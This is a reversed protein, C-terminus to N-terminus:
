SFGLLITAAERIAGPSGRYAWVQSVDELCTRGTGLGVAPVHYELESFEGWVGNAACAQLCYGQDDPADWPVDIYAGSPNVGFNRVILDWEVPSRHFVYGARGTTAIARM